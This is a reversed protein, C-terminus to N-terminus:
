RGLEQSHEAFDKELTGFDNKVKIRGDMFLHNEKEPLIRHPSHVRINEKRTEANPESRSPNFKIRADARVRGVNRERFTPLLM